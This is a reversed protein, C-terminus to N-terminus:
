VPRGAPIPDPAGGARVRAAETLVDHAKTWADIDARSALEDDPSLESERGDYILGLRRTYRQLFSARDRRTTEYEALAAPLEEASRDALLVGLAGADEISQNAGQGAHPLMAHAADGVLAVRGRTWTALPERDYLGWRFTSDLAGIVRRVPECWEAFEAALAAPEGPASWSERMQEDAVVFAVVNLLSRRRVPFVLLHRGSGVFMTAENLPWDPLREAPVLGRYAVMGSFVPARPETVHSRVVSHIGDAGLLADVEEHTGDEFLVRVRRGLEEVGRVRAALRVDSEDLDARLTEVLDARHVNRGDGEGGGGGIREGDSRYLVMGNALNVAHQDLAPLLGLQEIVRLSNRTLSVGAGVEGIARAQEYVRVAVGARTLAAAAALGAIGGGAIGVIPATM